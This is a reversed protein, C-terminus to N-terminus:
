DLHFLVDKLLEDEQSDDGHQRSGERGAVFAITTRVVELCKHLCGALQFGIVATM